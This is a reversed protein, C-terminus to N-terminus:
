DSDADEVEKDAEIITPANVYAPFSFENCEDFLADADILRGHGKPLVKGKKILLMLYERRIGCYWPSSIERYVNDPIDIVVKM